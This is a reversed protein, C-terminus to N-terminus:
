IGLVNNQGAFIKDYDIKEARVGISEEIVSVVKDTIVKTAEKTYFHTMDSHFERPANCLLGYLDNIKGGNKIVIEAAANNFIEIDKNYRMGKQPEPFMDELVPTSTAFIIDAKPFLVKIRRCIRDVFNEYASLPTLVGDNYLILTDWLGANWHVCDVDDGLKLEDKWDHLTRLIYQAFRCNDGPYYIEAKDEFAKKVFRDYGQRISDGLLLVKKM